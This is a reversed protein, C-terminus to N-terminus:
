FSLQLQNLWTDFIGHYCFCKKNDDIIYLDKLATNYREQIDTKISTNTSLIHSIIDVTRVSGKQLDNTLKDSLNIKIIM